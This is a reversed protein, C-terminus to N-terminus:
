LEELLLGDLLTQLQTLYRSGALGDTARHDGALSADVTPRIVPQGDIPWVEDHVAGFGVLAVQPPHIVGSVSDAGRDGLNTVTISAETLDSARLRGQRARQVLEGLRKMMEAPTLQDALDITPVIVGGSRLSLVVGLRVEEAPVFTGDRWWGNCNSVKAAARAAACLLLSGPVVRDAVSRDENAATLREIATSLDLRKSVHYHPIETWSKTMLEAIHRRMTEARSPTSTSREATVEHSPLALVDDGTVLTTGALTAPDLGREHL